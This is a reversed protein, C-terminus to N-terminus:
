APSWRTLSLQSRLNNQEEELNQLRSLINNVDVKPANAAANAENELFEMIAELARQLEAAQEQWADRSRAFVDTLQRASARASGSTFPPTEAGLTGASQFRTAESDGANPPTPPSPNRPATGLGTSTSEPMQQGTQIQQRVLTTLEELKQTLRDCAAVIPSSALPATEHTFSSPVDSQFTPHPTAEPKRSKHETKPTTM